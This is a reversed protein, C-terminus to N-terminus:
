CLYVPKEASGTPRCFRLSSSVVKEGPSYDHEIEGLYFCLSNGKTRGEGSM